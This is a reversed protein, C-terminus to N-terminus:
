STRGLYNSNLSVTLKTVILLDKVGTEIAVKKNVERAAMYVKRWDKEPDPETEGWDELIESWDWERDLNDKESFLSKCLEAQNTNKPIEIRKNAFIIECNNLDFNPAVLKANQQSQADVKRILENLLRNTEYQPNPPIAINELHPPEPLSPIEYKFRDFVKASLVLEKLTDGLASSNQFADAISKASKGLEAFADLNARKVIGLELNDLDLVKDTPLKSDSDSNTNVEDSQKM